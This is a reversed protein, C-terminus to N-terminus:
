EKGQFKRYESLQDLYCRDSNYLGEGIEEGEAAEPLEYDDITPAAEDLADGIDRYLRQLRDLYSSIRMDFDAKIEEYELELQQLEGQYKEMTEDQIETLDEEIIAAAVRLRHKLSVDRYHIIADKVIQRFVGPHKSELADLETAGSGFREEFRAARKETAKIPTRPLKYELCQNETLIIPFLRVDFSVGNGNIDYILKEIKRAVAVPMSKGAPDFDSVYLIRCPKRYELLRDLLWHVQTISIEGVGVVLNVSHERCLPELIDNMTSKETWVEIHYRQEATIGSLNFRPPEPMEPFEFYSIEDELIHISPSVDTMMDNIVPKRSRRDDFCSAPVLKLYRAYKSAQALDHFCSDTNEYRKGNPFFVAEDQSIIKYHIRRIHVENSYGFQKWIDAFWAAFSKHLGTGIYFPDNGSSLAFLADVKCKREVALAKISEFNM